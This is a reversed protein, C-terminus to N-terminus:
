NCITLVRKLESLRVLRLLLSVRCDAKLSHTETINKLIWLTSHKEKCTRHRSNRSGFPAEEFRDLDVPWFGLLVNVLSLLPCNFSGEFTM